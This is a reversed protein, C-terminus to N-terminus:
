SFDETLRVFVEFSNQIRNTNTFDLLLHSLTGVLAVVLLTTSAARSLQEGTRQVWWRAVLWLLVASVLAWVITHTHGRHHLLYGLAGMDLVPGSYILDSDPFEAAVIGLVSLARRLRTGVSLGRRTLSQEAVDAILLGALGHTM